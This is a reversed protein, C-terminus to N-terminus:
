AANQLILQNMRQAPTQLDLTPRPRRNLTDQVRKLEDATHTSLDTGKAFWHRLLRNTNENTGRQWPSRPDCFYVPSGLEVRIREYAAMEVGRDWTMSRRLHEPLDKMATIMAHAVADATHRQPLHLLITFRTSREVLTGIASQGGTGIILDGEWHGPVSRDQAEAPRDAIKLADDFRGRRQETRDTKVPVRKRRKLSLQRYLDKRLEGRTQVYLCQYITEHSVSMSRDKGVPAPLMRSILKPSWGEDMWAAIRACLEPNGVLKFQKPRSAGRDAKAQASHARYVGDAGSNRKKERCVVSKDRGIEEAIETLSRGHRLGCQIAMRDEFVLRSGAAHPVSVVAAPVRDCGPGSGKDVILGCSLVVKPKTLEVGAAKRWLYACTRSVGFLRTAQASPMGAAVLEFYRERVVAGFEYGAPM